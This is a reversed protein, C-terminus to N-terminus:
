LLHCLCDLVVLAVQAFQYVLKLVVDVLGLVLKGVSLLPDIVAVLFDNVDLVEDM